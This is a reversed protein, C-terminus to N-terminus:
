LLASSVRLVPIPGVLKGSLLLQMAVNTRQCVKIALHKVECCDSPRGFAGIVCNRAKIIRWYKKFLPSQCSCNQSEVIESVPFGVITTQYDNRLDSRGSERVKHLM